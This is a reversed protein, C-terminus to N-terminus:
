HAGKDYMEDINRSTINGLEQMDYVNDWIKHVDTKIEKEFELLDSIDKGFEREMETVQQKINRVDLFFQNELEDLDIPM